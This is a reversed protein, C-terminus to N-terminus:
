ARNTAQSVLEMITQQAGDVGSAGMESIAHFVTADNLIGLDRYTRDDIHISAMAAGTAANFARLVAKTERENVTVLLVDIHQTM